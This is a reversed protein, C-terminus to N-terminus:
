SIRSYLTSLPQTRRWFKWLDRRTLGARFGADGHTIFTLQHIRGQRMAALLPAFWDADLAVLGARWGWADRYQAAALLRDLQVWACSAASTNELVAALSHPAAEPTAGSARALLQTIDADSYLIERPQSPTVPAGNGWLWLSNVTPEGQEERSQNLPHTFLFMQIENQLRDWTLADEGQPRHADVNEGVVDALPTFRAKVAQSIQLYWRAPTPAYFRLGEQDFHRNLDAVLREAEEQTVHMVGIDALVARDRNIHLHVPDAILWDGTQIDLGDQQASLRALNLNAVNFPYAELRSLSIIQPTLQARSLLQSLAPTELARSVEAGDYSDLWTLGPIALTLKM